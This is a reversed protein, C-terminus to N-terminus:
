FYSVTLLASESKKEISALSSAYGASLLSTIISQRSSSLVWTGDAQQQGFRQVFDDM